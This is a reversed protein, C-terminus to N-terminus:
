SIKLSVNQNVLGTLTTGSLAITYLVIHGMTFKQLDFFVGTKGGIHRVLPHRWVSTDEPRLHSRNFIFVSYNVHFFLIYMFM